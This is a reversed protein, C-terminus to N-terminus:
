GQDNLIRNNELTLDYTKQLNNSFKSALHDNENHAAMLDMLEIRQNEADSKNQDYKGKGGIQQINTAKGLDKAIYDLQKTADSYLKNYQKQIDKIEKM